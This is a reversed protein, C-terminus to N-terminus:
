LSVCNNASDELFIGGYIQGENLNSEQYGGNVVDTTGTPKKLIGIQFQGGGSLSAATPGSVLKLAADGASYYTTVQNKTYDLKIAFNQWQSKDMATAYM